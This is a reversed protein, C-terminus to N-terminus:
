AKARRNSCPKAFRLRFLGLQATVFRARFPRGPSLPLPDGPFPIFRDAPVVYDGPFRYVSPVTFPRFLLRFVTSPISRSPFTEVVVHFPERLMVRFRSAHYM